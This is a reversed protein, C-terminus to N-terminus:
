SKLKWSAHKYIIPIKVEFILKTETLICKTLELSYYLSMRDQNIALDFGLNELNKKLENLSNKLTVPTVASASLRNEQCHDILKEFENLEFQREIAKLLENNQRNLRMETKYKMVNRNEYQKKLSDNGDSIANFINYILKPLWHIKTITKILLGHPNILKKVLNEHKGSFENENANVPEAGAITIKSSFDPMEIKYNEIKSKFNEFKENKIINIHKLPDMVSKDSLCLIKDDAGCDPDTDSDDIYKDNISYNSDIRDMEFIIPLSKEYIIVNPIDKITVGKSLITAIQIEENASWKVLECILLGIILEM